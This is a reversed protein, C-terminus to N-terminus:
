DDKQRKQKLNGLLKWLYSYLLHELIGNKETLDVGDVKWLADM